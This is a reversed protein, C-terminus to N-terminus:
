GWRSCVNGPACDDRVQQESLQDPPTHFHDALMRVARLYADQTGRPSDPSSSTTPCASVSHPTWTRTRPDPILLDGSGPVM